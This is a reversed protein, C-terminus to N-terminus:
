LEIMAENNLSYLSGLKLDDRGGRRRDVRGERARGLGPVAGSPHCGHCVYGAQRVAVVNFLFPVPPLLAAVKEPLRKTRHNPPRSPAAPFSSSAFAVAFLAAPALAEEDYRNWRVKWGFSTSPPAGGASPGRVDDERTHYAGWGRGMWIEIMRVPRMNLSSVAVTRSQPPPHYPSRSREWLRTCDRAM